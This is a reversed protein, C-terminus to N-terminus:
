ICDVLAEAAFDAPLLGHARGCNAL